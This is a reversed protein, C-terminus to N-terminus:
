MPPASSSLLATQEQTTLSTAELQAIQQAWQSIRKNQHKKIATKTTNVFKGQSEAYVELAKQRKRDFLTQAM